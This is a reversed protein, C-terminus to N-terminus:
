DFSMVARLNDRPIFWGHKLRKANLRKLSDVLRSRADNITGDDLLIKGELLADVVFGTKADVMEILEDPTMWIDEIRYPKKVTIFGCREKIDPLGSAIVLMDVDSHEKADNRAVSGFLLIGRVDLGKLVGVYDNIMEEFM